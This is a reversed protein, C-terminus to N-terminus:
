KCTSCAIQAYVHQAFEDIRICSGDGTQHTTLVLLCCLSSQLVQQEVIELLRVLLEEARAEEDHVAVYGM